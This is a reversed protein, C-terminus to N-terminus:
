IMKDETNYETRYIKLAREKSSDMHSRLLEEALNINNSRLAEFIESHQKYIQNRNELIKQYANSFITFQTRYIAAIEALRENDSYKYFILHFEDSFKDWEESDDIFEYSQNLSNELENLMDDKFASKMALRMAIVDFEMVLVFVENIDKETFTIVRMGINPKYEVLGDKRLHALAERIPSSSVGYRERLMNVTLREGAPLNQNLIESRIELYIQETITKVSINKLM